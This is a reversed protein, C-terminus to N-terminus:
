KNIEYEIPVNNDYNVFTYEISICILANTIIIDVRKQLLVIFDYGFL